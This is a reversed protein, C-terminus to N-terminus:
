KMILLRYCTWIKPNTLFKKVAWETAWEPDLAQEKTVEPHSPLHIQWLGFSLGGDGIVNPSLGSECEAIKIFTEDLGYKKSVNVLSLKIQEPTTQKPLSTIEAVEEKTEGYYYVITDSNTYSIWALTGIM